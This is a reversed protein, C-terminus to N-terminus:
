SGPRPEALLLARLQVRAFGAVALSLGAVGARGRPTGKFAAHGVLLAAGVVNALLVRRTPPQWDEAVSWVGVTGAWGIAGLGASRVVGGRLGVARGIPGGALVAASGVLLCFVADLGLSRRALAEAGVVPDPM